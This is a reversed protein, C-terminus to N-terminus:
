RHNGVRDSQPETSVADIWSEYPDPSLPKANEGVETYHRRGNPM